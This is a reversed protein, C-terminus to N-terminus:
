IGLLMWLRAGWIRRLRRPSRGPLAQVFFCGVPLRLRLGFTRASRYGEYGAWIHPPYQSARVRGDRQFLM